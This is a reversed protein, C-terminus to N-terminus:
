ETEKIVEVSAEDETPILMPRHPNVLNLHSTDKRIPDTFYMDKSNSWDFLTQLYEEYQPMREEITYNSAWNHCVHSDIEKINRANVLAHDYIRSRLGNDGHRVIHPFSGWDTTIVPTGSLGYEMIVHGFPENYFSCVWGCEANSMLHMRQEINAHGFFEVHPPLKDLGMPKLVWNTLDGQGAIILKKGLEQTAKIAWAIGKNYMLRGLYLHYDEKKDSFKFQEPKLFCGIVTDTMLPETYPICDNPRVFTHENKDTINNEHKWNRYNTDWVATQFSQLHYSEFVRHPAWVSHYGISGEINFVNLDSIQNAIGQHVVPYFYMVFEKDRIRKRIEAAVALNFTYIYKANDEQSVEYCNNRDEHNFEKDFLEKPIVDIYEVNEPLEAGEVGLCILDHGRAAMGEVFNMYKSTYACANYERNPITHPMAPLYIVM